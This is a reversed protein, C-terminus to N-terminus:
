DMGLQVNYPPTAVYLKKCPVKLAPCELDMKLFHELRRQCQNKCRQDMTIDDRLKYLDNHEM